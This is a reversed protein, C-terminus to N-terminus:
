KQSFYGFTSASVLPLLTSCLSYRLTHAGESSVALVVSSGYIPVWSSANDLKFSYSCPPSRDVCSFNFRPTLDRSVATPMLVVETVPPTFDSFGIVFPVRRDEIGVRCEVALLQRGKPLGGSVACHLEGSLTTSCTSAVTTPTTNGAFARNGVYHKLTVPHSGCGLAGSTDVASFTLTFPTNAACVSPTSSTSCNVVTAFLWCVCTPVQSRPEM